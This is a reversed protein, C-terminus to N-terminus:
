SLTAVNRLSKEGFLLSPVLSDTLWGARPVYMVHRPLKNLAVSMPFSTM